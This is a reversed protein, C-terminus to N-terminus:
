ERTGTERLAGLDTEKPRIYKNDKSLINKSFDTINYYTDSLKSVLVARYGCPDADPNSRGYHVDEKLLIEHWNNPNIEDAYKSKETYVIVDFLRTKDISSSSLWNRM